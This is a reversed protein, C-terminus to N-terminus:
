DAGRLKFTYQINLTYKIGPLTCSCFEAQAGTCPQSPTGYTTIIILRGVIVHHACDTYFM